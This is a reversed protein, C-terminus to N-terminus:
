LIFPVLLALVTGGLLYASWVVYALVRLYRIRTGRSAMLEEAEVRAIGRDYTWVVTFVITVPTFGTLLVLGLAALFLATSLGMSSAALVAPSQSYGYTAAIWVLLAILVWSCIESGLQPVRRGAASRRGLNDREAADPGPANRVRRNERSRRILVGLLLPWGAVVYLGPLSLLFPILPATDV